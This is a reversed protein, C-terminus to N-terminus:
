EEEAGAQSTDRRGSRQEITNRAFKGAAQNVGLITGYTIDTILDHTERVINATERIGPISELIGFPIKAIGKHVRRVTIAGTDVVSETIRQMTQLRRYAAQRYRLELLVSSDRRLQRSFSDIEAGLIVARWVTAAILVTSSLYLLGDILAM